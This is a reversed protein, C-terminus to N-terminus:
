EAGALMESRGGASVGLEDHAVLGDPLGVSVSSPVAVATRSAGSTSGRGGSAGGATGGADEKAGTSWEQFGFDLQSQLTSDAFWWQVELIGVRLAEKDDDYLPRSLKLFAARSLDIATSSPCSCRSTLLM